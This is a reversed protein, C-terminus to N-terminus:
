LKLGKAGFRPDSKSQTTLERRQTETPPAAPAPVTERKEAVRNRRKAPRCISRLLDASVKEGAASLERAIARWSHGRAHLTLLRQRVEALQQHKDSLRPRPGVAELRDLIQALESATM